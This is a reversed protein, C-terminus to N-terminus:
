IRLYNIPLIRDECALPSIGYVLVDDGVDLVANRRKLGSLLQSTLMLLENCRYMMPRCKALVTTQKREETM